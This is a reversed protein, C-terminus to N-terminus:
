GVKRCIYYIWGDHCDQEPSIFAGNEAVMEVQSFGADELQRLQHEKKIYYTMLKFNHSSDNIISFNKEWVENRKNRLHNLIGTFYRKLRVLNQKILEPPNQASVFGRFKFASRRKSDLNHTSFVFVGNKKLVRHVEGLIRTRDEHDADDIVNFCSFVTDFAGDAFAVMNTADCLLLKVNRHKARCQQLMSESYDIGTYDETHASLYPVTRGAAVGIDLIAKDKIEESLYSLIFEEAKLLKTNRAYSESIGPANYERRSVEQMCARKM